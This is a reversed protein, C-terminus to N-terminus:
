GFRLPASGARGSRRVLWPGPCLDGRPRRRHVSTSGGRVHSFARDSRVARSRVRDPRDPSPVRPVRRVCPRRATGAQVRGRGTAGRQRIVLNAPPEIEQCLLRSRVFLGRVTPSTDNGTVPPALFSGHSLIGRRDTGAYSRWSPENLGTTTLGYHQALDDGVFTEESRFLASWDVRDDFLVRGLLANTEARMPEALDARIDMRDYGLWMAHYTESARRARPDDLMTVAVQEISEANELSGAAAADLLWDNPGSGWLFYSLRSAVEFGDLRRLTSDGIVPQGIELRYLFRPHQLFASLAAEAAVYFDDAETGLTALTLFDNIDEPDLPRRLARRGFSRVFSELCPTDRPASPTCGLVADRRTPDAM